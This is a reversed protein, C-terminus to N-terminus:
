VESFTSVILDGADGPSWLVGFGLAESSTVHNWDPSLPKESSSWLRVCVKDLSSSDAKDNVGDQRAWDPRRWQTSYCDVDELHLQRIQEPQEESGAAVEGDAKNGPDSCLLTLPWFGYLVNYHHYPVQYLDHEPFVSNVASRPWLRRLYKMMLFGFNPRRKAPFRCCCVVSNFGSVHYLDTRPAWLLMSEPTWWFLLDPAYGTTWSCIRWSSIPLSLNSRRPSSSQPWSPSTVWPPWLRSSSSWTPLTWVKTCLSHFCM